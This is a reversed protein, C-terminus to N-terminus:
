ESHRRRVGARRAGFVWESAPMCALGFLSLVVIWMDGNSLTSYGAVTIVAASLLCITMSTVVTIMPMKTPERLSSM